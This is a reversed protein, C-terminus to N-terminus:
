FRVNYRFIKWTITAKMVVLVVEMILLDVTAMLNVVLMAAPLALLVSTDEMVLIAMGKFVVEEVAALIKRVM